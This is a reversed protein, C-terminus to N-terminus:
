KSPPDKSLPIGNANAFPTVVVFGTSQNGGFTSLCCNLDPHLQIYNRLILYMLKQTVVAM